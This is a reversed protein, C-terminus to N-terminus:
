STTSHLTLELESSDIYKLLKQNLSYLDIQYIEETEIIKTEVLIKALANKLLTNDSFNDFNNFMEYGYMYDQLLMDDMIYTKIFDRVNKEFINGEM